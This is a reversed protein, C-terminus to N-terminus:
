DVALFLGSMASLKRLQRAGLYCVRPDMSEPDPKDGVKEQLRRILKPWEGNWERDGNYAWPWSPDLVGLKVGVRKILEAAKPDDLNRANAVPLYPLDSAATQVRASPRTVQALRDQWRVVLGRPGDDRGNNALGNRGAFYADVQAQAGASQHPCDHWVGHAHHSFGQAPTRHWTIVGWSRWVRLAADSYQGTDIVGGGDHTGASAAVGGRNYGGQTVDLCRKVVGRKVALRNVLPWWTQFCSCARFTTGDPATITVPSM